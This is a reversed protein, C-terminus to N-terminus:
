FGLLVLLEADSFISPDDAAALLLEEEVIGELDASLAVPDSGSHSPGQSREPWALFALVVAAAAALAGFRRPTFWQRWAPSPLGDLRVARVVNRAFMPSPAAPPAKALLDWLRDSEAATGPDPHDPRNM